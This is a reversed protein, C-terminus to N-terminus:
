NLKKFMIKKATKLCLALPANRYYFKLHAERAHPNASQYYNCAIFTYFKCGLKSNEKYLIVSRRLISM